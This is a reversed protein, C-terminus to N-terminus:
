NDGSITPVAYIQDIRTRLLIKKVSDIFKEKLVAMKKDCDTIDDSEPIDGILDYDPPDERSNNLISYFAQYKGLM